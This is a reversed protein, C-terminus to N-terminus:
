QLPFVCEAVDRDDCEIITVNGEIREVIDKRGNVIIKYKVDPMNSIALIPSIVVIKVVKGFGNKHLLEMALGNWMGVSVITIEDYMATLVNYIAHLRTKSISIPAFCDIEKEKEMVRKQLDVVLKTPFGGIILVCHKPLPNETPEPEDISPQEDVDFFITQDNLWSIFNTRYNTFKDAITYAFDMWIYRIGSEELTLPKPPPLSAILAKHPPPYVTIRRSHRLRRM